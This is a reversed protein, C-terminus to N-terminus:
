FQMRMVDQYAELAKNRFQLTMQFALGAEEAEAMVQHLPPGAGRVSSELNGSSQLQLRNVESLAESLSRVFGTAGGGVTPASRQPQVRSEIERFISTDIKM